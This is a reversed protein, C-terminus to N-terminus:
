ASSPMRSPITRRTPESIHILSLWLISGDVRDVAFAIFEHRQTVAANDHAGPADDPVLGTRPGVPVAATLFVRDGWVVPSGYGVGPLEIKFRVNETESWRSPPDADPAVGTGLPGRWQGWQHDPSAEVVVPLAAMCLAVTFRSLIPGM